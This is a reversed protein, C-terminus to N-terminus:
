SFYEGGTEAAILLEQYVTDGHDIFALAERAQRPDKSGTLIRLQASTNSANAIPPTTKVALNPSYDKAALLVREIANSLNGRIEKVYIISNSEHFGGAKPFFLLRLDFKHAEEFSFDWGEPVGFTYAYKNPEM